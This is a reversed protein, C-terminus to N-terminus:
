PPCSFSYTACACLGTARDVMLVGSNCYYDQTSSWCAQEGFAGCSVCILRQYNLVYGPHCYLTGVTDCPKEGSSGCLVPSTTNTGGTGQMGGTGVHGGTSTQGGTGAIFTDPHAEPGMVLTDPRTDLVSADPTTVVTSGGTGSTGGTGVHGGTGPIPTSGGVPVSGGFSISGGTSPISGGTGVQGGTGPITVAVCSGNGDCALPDDETGSCYGPVAQGAPVGVCSLHVSTTSTSGGTGHAGGTSPTTSGGTSKMGGTGQVVTTSSTSTSGGTGQTAMLAGGTGQMGGTTPYSLTDTGADPTNSLGKGDSSCAFTFLAILITIKKM